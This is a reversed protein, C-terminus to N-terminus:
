NVVNFPRTFNFGEFSVNLSYRGKISNNSFSWCTYIRGNSSTLNKTVAYTNANLKASNLISINQNGSTQGEFTGAQPLTIIEKSQITYGNEVPKISWCLRDKQSVSINLVNSVTGNQKWVELYVTPEIDYELYQNDRRANQIAYYADIDRQNEYQAQNAGQQYAGFLNPIYVAHANLSLLLLASLTFKSLTKM